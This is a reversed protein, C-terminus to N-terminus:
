FDVHLRAALFDAPGRDGNYAPNEVHQYDFTVTMAKTLSVAYFAEFASEPAYRTLRGDGILLGLGGVAFFARHAPTIGNVAAGIGVTDNPRGWAAGKLSFGGSLSRDIDTFSLSENRGDNFSARAFLGLDDTLEQELNAYFGTKRRPRRTLTTAAVADDFVGAQTLAAVQRFDAVNGVNSFFGLRLVGPRDLALMRYRGEFEVNLGAREFIRPDLVDSSPQKPVQTYAARIAFEKRNYEAMVGQTFGPLNAPFDWASSAWLSWNFFDVRPDHAYRNGDFFDGLAFKGAVVTIREIDRRTAVQNPGDPVDETEGGLGFTQRVFYRNSRLRPFAAGAKQAEGNVFGAVGTTGSLGFGQSFEPNYYLETGEWLKLGLFITATTTQQTQRPVLSQPGLYPSRFGPVGQAILTTQGHLSFRDGGGDGPDHPAAEDEEPPLRLGEPFWILRVFMQNGTASAQTSVPGGAPGPVAGLGFRRSEGFDVYRYDIGLAFNPHFAFQIGAGLTFGLYGQEARAAVTGGNALDPYTALFRSNAGALGFSAYVLYREFSYGIRARLSGYLDTKARLLSGDVDIEEYGFGPTALALPRKLNAASLDAEVGYAWRGTQWTWGGFLGGVATTANQGRDRSGTADGTRFVEVPRGGVVTRDFNFAGYSAGASAQVGLYGGSWDVFAPLTAGERRPLDAARSLGPSLLIALGCVGALWDICPPLARDRM